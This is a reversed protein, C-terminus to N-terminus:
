LGGMTLIGIQYGMGWRGEMSVDVDRLDQIRCDSILGQQVQAQIM